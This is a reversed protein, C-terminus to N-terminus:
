RKPYQRQRCAFSEKSVHQAVTTSEFPALVHEEDTAFKALSAIEGPRFRLLRRRSRLHLFEGPNKPEKLSQKTSGLFTFKLPRGM